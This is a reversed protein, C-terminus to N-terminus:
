WGDFLVLQQEVYLKPSSAAAVGTDEYTPSVFCRFAPTVAAMASSLLLHLGHLLKDGYMLFIQTASVVGEMCPLFGSAVCVFPIRASVYSAYM